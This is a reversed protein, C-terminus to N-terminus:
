KVERGAAWQCARVFFKGGCAADLAAPTDRYGAFACNVVRGKGLQGVFLPYFPQELSQAEPVDSKVQILALSTAQDALTGHTGNAMVPLSSGKKLSGLIPHENVVECEINARSRWYSADALGHLALVSPTFGPSTAAFGQRSIFGKGERVVQEMAALADDPVNYVVSAVIVDVQRLAAPDAINLPKRGAFNQKLLAALEPDSESGAEILPYLDLEAHSLDRPIFRVQSTYSYHRDGLWSPGTVTFQSLYVGVKIPPGTPPRAAPRPASASAAGSPTTTATQKGRPPANWLPRTLWLILAAIAVAAIARGITVNRKRTDTM